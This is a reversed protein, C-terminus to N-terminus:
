VTVKYVAVGALFICVINVLTLCLSLTGLVALEVAPNDSYTNSSIVDSWRTEDDMFLLHLLGIAWLLGQFLFSKLKM